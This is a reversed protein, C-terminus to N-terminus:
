RLILPYDDRTVNQKRVIPRLSDMYNSSGYPSYGSQFTYGYYVYRKEELTMTTDSRLYRDLLKPYYLNSEKDAIDKEIKKYDPSEWKHNQSFGAISEVLFFLLIIKKM